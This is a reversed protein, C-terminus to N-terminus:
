KALVINASYLTHHVEVLNLVGDKYYYYNYNDDPLVIKYKHPDVKQITIFTEFNDSYVKSINEPEKSYLSLMNYTIPYDKMVKAEKGKYIIYHGNDAQHRKNAKEKGNVERYISSRWLIGSNFIAQEAGHAIFTSILKTKVDSELKLSDTGGSTTESFRMTGVKNGSRLIQFSLLKKQSYATLVSMLLVISLAIGTM